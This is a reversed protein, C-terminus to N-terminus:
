RRSYLFCNTPKSCEWYGLALGLMGVIRRRTNNNSEVGRFIGARFAFLSVPHPHATLETFKGLEKATM